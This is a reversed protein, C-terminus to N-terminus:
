AGRPDLVLRLGRAVAPTAPLDFYALRGPAERLAAARAPGPEAASPSM